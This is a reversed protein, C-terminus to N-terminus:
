EMTSIFAQLNSFTKVAPLILNSQKESIILLRPRQYIANSSATLNWLQPYFPSVLTMLEQHHLISCKFYTKLFRAIDSFLNSIAITISTSMCFGLRFHEKWILSLIVISFLNLKSMLHISKKLIRNLAHKTCLFM